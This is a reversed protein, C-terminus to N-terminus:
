IGTGVLETSAEADSGPIFAHVAALAAARYVDKEQFIEHKAGAIPVLQAARFYRSLAEQAAYPIVGDRTPAILLTPITISFLHEPASVRQIANFAELLWRATPPGLCLQPFRAALDMNRRYRAADSTLPNEAFPKEKLNRVLTLSGLGVRCAAAALFRIAGASAGQGTLGVFPASLVMREIRNALQPAASLAILAGTSHALLFFPMRADPLVVKELFATLDQEYHFFRGVHGHMANKLLRASGGQGRLDFTAVWLGRSTLDRITEFYKEIFENRGQLIVVTGKSVPQPCRFLAYRLKRGDFAEFYGETRNEPIPNDPTSFLISDM